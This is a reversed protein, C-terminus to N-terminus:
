QTDDFDEVHMAIGHLLPAWLLGTTATRGLVSARGSVDLDALAASAFLLSLALAGLGVAFRQPWLARAFSRDILM